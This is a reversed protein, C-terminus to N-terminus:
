IRPKCTQTCRGAQHSRCPLRPGHVHTGQAPITCFSVHSTSWNTSPYSLGGWGGERGLKEHGASGRVLQMIKDGRVHLHPSAGRRVRRQQRARVAAPAPRLHWRRSCVTQLRTSDHRSGRQAAQTKAYSAAGIRSPIAALRGLRPAPAGATRRQAYRSPAPAAAAAAPMAPNTNRNARPPRPAHHPTIGRPPRAAPHAARAAVCSPSSIQEQGTGRPADISARHAGCAPRRLRHRRLAPRHEQAEGPQPACGARGRCKLLMARCCAPMRSVPRASPLPVPTRCIEETHQAYIACGLYAAQRTIKGDFLSLLYSYTRLSGLQGQANPITDSSGDAGELVIASVGESLAPLQELNEKFDNKMHLAM